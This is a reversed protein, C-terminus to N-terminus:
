NENIQINARILNRISEGDPHSLIFNCAGAFGVKHGIRSFHQHVENIQDPPLDVTIKSTNWGMLEIANLLKKARQIDAPKIM